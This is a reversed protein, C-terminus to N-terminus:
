PYVRVGIGADIGVGASPSLIVLPALEFYLEVPSRPIAYDIGVPVRAAFGLDVTRVFYGDRSPFYTSSAFGLAAGAGYHLSFSADVFPHSSWLYDAHIRFRDAPSFGVVGDIANEHSMRYKWTLGTPEGIVLGFGFRGQARLPAVPFILPLVLLIVL